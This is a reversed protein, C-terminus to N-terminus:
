EAYDLRRRGRCRRMEPGPAAPALAPDLGHDARRNEADRRDEHHSYTCRCRQQDCEALPLLPTAEKLFRTGELRRIAECAPSGAHVSVGHYPFAHNALAGQRGRTRPNPRPSRPAGRLYFLLGMVLALVLLLKV